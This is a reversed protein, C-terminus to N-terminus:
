KSILLQNGLYLILTRGIRTSKLTVFIKKKTFTLISILSHGGKHPLGIERSCKITNMDIYIM